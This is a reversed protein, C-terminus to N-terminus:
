TPTHFMALLKDFHPKGLAEVVDAPIIYEDTSVNITGKPGGDLSAAISDSTGTGPGKILGGDAYRKKVRGGNKWSDGGVGGTGGPGAAGSGADAGDDSTSAGVSVSANTGGEGQSSGSVGGDAGGAPGGAAGAVAMAADMAALNAQANAANNQNAIAMMLSMIFSPPTAIGALGAVTSVASPAMSSVPTPDLSEQNSMSPTSVDGGAVGPQAPHAANYDAMAQVYQAYQAAQQQRMAEQQQAQMVAREQGQQQQTDAESRAQMVPPAPTFSMQAAQPASSNIATGMSPSGGAPQSAGAGDSYGDYNLAGTQDKRQRAGMYNVNRVRTPQTGTDVQGGDAFFQGVTDGGTFNGTVQGGDAYGLMQQVLFPILQMVGGATVPPGGPQGTGTALPVQTPQSLSPDALGAQVQNRNNMVQWINGAAPQVTAMRGSGGGGYRTDGPAGIGGGDAYGKGDPSGRGAGNKSLATLARTTAEHASVLADYEKGSSQHGAGEWTGRATDEQRIVTSPYNNRGGPNEISSKPDYGVGGGDAFNLRSPIGGNGYGRDSYRPSQTMSPGGRILGGDAFFSGIADGIGGFLDSGWNGVDSLVGGASDLWSPAQPMLGSAGTIGDASGAYGFPNSGFNMGGGLSDSGATGFVNGLSSPLSGYSLGGGLGGLSPMSGTWDTIGGGPTGLNSFDLAAGAAPSYDMQAFAAPDNYSAGGGGIASADPQSFGGTIPASGFAPGQGTINQAPMQITGMSPAATSGTSLFGQGATPLSGGGGNVLQQTAAGDGPNIVGVGNSGAATKVGTDAGSGFFRKILGSKDALNLLTGGLGVAGAASPNVTRNATQSSQQQQATGTNQATQQTNAQQTNQQTAQQTTGTQATQRTNAAIQSAANGATAQQAQNNQLIAQVAQTSMQRNLDGLALQLGSNGSVRSGTANAYQATLAPVSRAGETFISQILAQMTAPDMGNINNGFVQQLAALDATSTTAGATTGGSTGAQSGTQNGSQTGNVQSSTLNTQNGSTTTRQGLLDQLLTSNIGSADTIPQYGTAGAM